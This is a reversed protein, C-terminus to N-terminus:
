PDRSGVVEVGEDGAGGKGVHQACSCQSVLGDALDAIQEGVAQPNQSGVVRVGECSM